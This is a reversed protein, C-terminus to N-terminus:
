RSRFRKLIGLVFFILGIVLLSFYIQLNKNGVYNAIFFSIISIIYFTMPSSNKFFDNIM